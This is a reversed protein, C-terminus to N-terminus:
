ASPGSFASRRRMARAWAGPTVGMITRFKRTLHAQDAFGVLASAEAISAGSEIYRRAAEVRRLMLYRRPPVGYANAFTHAFHFKAMGAEKALDDLMIDGDFCQDLYRRVRRLGAHSACATSGRPASEACQEILRYTSEALWCEIDAYSAGSRLTEHLGRFSDTVRPTGIQAEKLHLARTSGLHEAAEQLVSAHWRVVFFSAPHSVKTTQHVEGPEMLQMQGLGVCHERGRYRWDARLSTPSLVLCASYTDHVVVWNRDSDTVKMFEVGPLWESRYVWLREGKRDTPLESFHSANQASPSM